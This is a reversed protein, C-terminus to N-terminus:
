ASGEPQSASGKSAAKRAKRVKKAALRIAVGIAIRAWRAAESPNDLGEDPMTWYRLSHTSGDKVTYTLIRSGAASYLPETEEDGRLYIEGDFVLSFIVGGSYVGYGGFMRRVQVAGLEQFLDVLDDRDM